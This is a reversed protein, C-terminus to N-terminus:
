HGVVLSSSRARQAHSGITSISPGSNETYVVGGEWLARASHMFVDFDM